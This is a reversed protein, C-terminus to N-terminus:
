LISCPRLETHLYFITLHATKLQLCIKPTGTKFYGNTDFSVRDAERNNLYGISIMPGGVVVEGPKNSPLLESTNPDM